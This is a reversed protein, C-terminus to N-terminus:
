YHVRTPDVREGNAAEFAEYFNAPALGMGGCAIRNGGFRWPPACIGAM